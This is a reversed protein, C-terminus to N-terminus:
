EPLHPAYISITQWKGNILLPAHYLSSSRGIAVGNLSMDTADAYLTSETWNDGNLIQAKDSSQASPMALLSGISLRAVNVPTFPPAPLTIASLVAGPANQTEDSYGWQLDPGTSCRLGPTSQSHSMPHGNNPIKWRSYHLFEATRNEPTGGWRAAPAYFGGDKALLPGPLLSGDFNDRYTGDPWLAARVDGIEVPNPQSTPASWYCAYNSGPEADSGLIQDFDNIAVAAAFAPTHNGKNLPEWKGGAWTGNTYLVTGRDSIQLPQNPQTPFGPVTGANTIPFLAYRPMPAYLSFTVSNEAADSDAVDATGDLDADLQEGDTIGDNNSDANFADGVVGAVLGGSGRAAIEFEAWDPSGDQDTDIDANVKVRWFRKSNPDPPAPVPANRVRLISAAIQLNIEPVCAELAALMATDKPGLPPNVTPPTAMVGPHWFYFNYAGYRNWFLRISNWAPDM